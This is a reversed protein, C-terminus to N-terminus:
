LEAVFLNVTHSLDNTIVWDINGNPAVIKFLKVMFPVEKLKVVLGKVLTLEDFVLESLNQYGTERSLSVKRNSKLTTFFTWGHRAILKLNSVSGYWSDFLITRAKLQKHTVLRMFM